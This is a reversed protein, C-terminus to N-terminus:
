NFENLKKRHENILFELKNVAPVLGPIVVEEKNHAKQILQISINLIDEANGSQGIYKEFIDLISNNFPTKERLINIVERSSDNIEKELFNIARWIKKQREDWIDTGDDYKEDIFNSNNDKNNIEQATKYWNM